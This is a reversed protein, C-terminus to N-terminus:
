LAPNYEFDQWLTVDVNVIGAWPFTSGDEPPPMTRFIEELPQLIMSKGCGPEGVIAMNVGRKAGLALLRRAHM